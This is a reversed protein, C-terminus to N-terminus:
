ELSAIVDDRSLTHLIYAYYAGFGGFLLLTLVIMVAPPGGGGVVVGFLGASVLLCTGTLVLFVLSIITSVKLLIRGVTKRRLLLIAGVIRGLSLLCDIGIGIKQGLLQAELHEPDLGQSELEMAQEASSWQFVNIVQIVLGLGTLVFVTVCM